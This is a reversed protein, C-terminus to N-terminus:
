GKLLIKGNVKGPVAIDEFAKNIEFLSIIRDISESNIIIIVPISANMPVMNKALDIKSVTAPEFLAGQGFSVGETL